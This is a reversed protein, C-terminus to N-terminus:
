KDDDKLEPLRPTEKASLPAASPEPWLRVVAFAGGVLLIAVLWGLGHSMSLSRLITFGRLPAVTEGGSLRTTRNVPRTWRVPRAAPERTTASMGPSNYIKGKGSTTDAPM